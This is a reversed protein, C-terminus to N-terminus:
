NPSALLEIRGSRAPAPISLEFEHGKRRLVVRRPHVEALTFEIQQGDKELRVIEGQRYPKGNIQAVRRRQGVITSSLVMGLDAPAAESPIETPGDGLDAEAVETGGSLFPDRRGLAPDAPSTRPDNDMWQVLQHWPYNPRKDVKTAASSAAAITAPAAPVSVAAPGRPLASSANGVSASASPAKAAPDDAAIWGWVLPAWFWLAVLVLLGLVAAKKPHATLERRLQRTVKSPRM